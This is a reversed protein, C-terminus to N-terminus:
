GAILSALARGMAFGIALGTALDLAPGILRSAHAAVAGPAPVSSATIYARRRALAAPLLLAPLALALWWSASFAGALCAAFIAVFSLAGTIRTM